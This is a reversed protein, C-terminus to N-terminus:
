EADTDTREKNRGVARGLIYGAITGFLGMAPAIQNSNYGATVFFLTGLIILTVGYVRLIDESKLNKTNRLLFFEMILAILSIASIIITLNFERSSLYGPHAQPSPPNSPLQPANTPDEQSAPPSQARTLNRHTALGVLTLLVAAFTLSVSYQFTRTM